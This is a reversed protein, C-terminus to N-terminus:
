GGESVACGGTAAADSAARCTAEDFFWRGNELQVSDGDIGSLKYTTRCPWDREDTPKSPPEITAPGFVSIEEAAQWYHFAAPAHSGAARRITGMPAGPALPAFTWAECEPSGAVRFYVTAKKRELSALTEGPLADCFEVLLRDSTIVQEFRVADDTIKGAYDADFSEMQELLRKVSRLGMSAECREDRVFDLPLAGLSATGARQEATVVARLANADFSSCACAPLARSLEAHLAPWRTNPRAQGATTVAGALAPCSSFEAYGQEALSKRVAPDRETLVRAAINQAAPPTGPDAPLSATSHVRVLLELKVSRPVPLVAARLTRITVGPAAAVYVVSSAPLTKARAAWANPDLTEGDLALTTESLELVPGAAPPSGLTSAPLEVRLDAGLSREPLAAVLAVLNAKRAECAAPTDEPPPAFAAHTQCGLLVPFIVTKLRM